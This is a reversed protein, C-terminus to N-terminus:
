RLGLGLGLGLGLELGLGLGLGLGLRRLPKRSSFQCESPVERARARVGVRGRVRARALRAWGSAPRASGVGLRKRGVLRTM